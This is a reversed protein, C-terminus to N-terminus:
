PYIPKFNSSDVEFIEINPQACDGDPLCTITTSLGQIGHMNYLADRLKQRQIYLKDGVVLAAQRVAYFLMNAADYAQLHYAAIPDEGFRTKYEQLFNQSEQVPAPGSLYMGDSFPQTQQLFDKNLLGDSGILAVNTLGAQHIADVIAVGDDTYVPFYIVLPTMSAAAKLTGTIVQNEGYRLDVQSDCVGGLQQFSDCAAQQLGKAYATGDHFTIMRRMGLVTYAFEAVAKGQAQDNYISRFFGAEHTSPDTLSPTTSSPSVLVTGADTLVKAAAISADSCTAGIVGIIQPDAALKQAAAEGAKEDCQDDEKILEVKHGLLNGTDAIAIEIGREADIGYSQNPGSMTLLTGIKLSEDTGVAICGLSDTCNFTAMGGGCSSLILSAIIAIAFLSFRKM